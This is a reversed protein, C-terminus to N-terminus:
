GFKEVKREIVRGVCDDVNNEKKEDRKRKKCL